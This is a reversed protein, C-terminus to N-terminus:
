LLLHVRLLITKAFLFQHDLIKMAVRFLNLLIFDLFIYNCKGGKRRNEFELVKLGIKGVKGTKIYNLM